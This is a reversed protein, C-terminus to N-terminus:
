DHRQPQYTAVVQGTPLERLAILAEEIILEM